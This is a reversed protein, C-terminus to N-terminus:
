GEEGEKSPLSPRSLVCTSVHEIHTKTAAEADCLSCRVGMRVTGGGYSPRHVEVICHRTLADRQKENEGRLASLEAEQAAVFDRIIKTADIYVQEPLELALATVCRDFLKRDSM